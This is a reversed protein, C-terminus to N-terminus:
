ARRAASALDAASRQTALLRKPSDAEDLVDLAPLGPRLSISFDPALIKKLDLDSMAERVM